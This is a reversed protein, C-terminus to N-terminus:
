TPVRYRAAPDRGYENSISNRREENKMKEKTNARHTSALDLISEITKVFIFFFFRYSSLSINQANILRERKLAQM